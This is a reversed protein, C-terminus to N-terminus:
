HVGAQQSCFVASHHLEGAALCGLGELSRSGLGWRNTPLNTDYVRGLMSISPVRFVPNPLSFVALFGSGKIDAKNSNLDQTSTRIQTSLMDIKPPLEKWSAHMGPLWKPKRHSQPDISNKPNLFILCGSIRAPKYFPYLPAETLKHMPKSNPIYAQDNSAPEGVIRFGLGKMCLSQSISRGPGVSSCPLGLGFSPKRTVLTLLTIFLPPEESTPICVLKQLSPPRM